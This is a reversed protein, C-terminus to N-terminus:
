DADQRRKLEQELNTLCDNIQQQRLLDEDDTRRKAPMGENAAELRRDVLELWNQLVSRKEGLTLAKEDMVDNPTAFYSEPDQKAADRNLKLLKGM